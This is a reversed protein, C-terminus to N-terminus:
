NLNKYNISFISIYIIPLILLTPKWSHVITSYIQFSLCTLLYIFLTWRKLRWLGYIIVLSIISLTLTIYFKSGNEFRFLIFTDLVTFLLLLGSLFRM